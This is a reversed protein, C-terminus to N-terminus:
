DPDTGLGPKRGEKTPPSYGPADFGAKRLMFEQHIREAVVRKEQLTNNEGAGFFANAKEGWSPFDAGFFPNFFLPLLSLTYNIRSSVENL